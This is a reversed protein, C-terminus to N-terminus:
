GFVAFGIIAAIALFCPAQRLADRVTIRVPEGFQRGLPVTADLLRALRSRLGAAARRKRRPIAGAPCARGQNEILGPTWDGM